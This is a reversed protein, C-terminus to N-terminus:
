EPAQERYPTAVANAWVWCRYETECATFRIAIASSTWMVAEAFKVRFPEAGFRVWVVVTEPKPSRTVPEHDLGLELRTLTQLPAKKALSEIYKEDSRRDVTDAYRRSTGM